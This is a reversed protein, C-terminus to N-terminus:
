HTVTYGSVKAAIKIQGIPLNKVLNDFNIGGFVRARARRVYDHAYYHAVTDRAACVYESIVNKSWNVLKLAQWFLQSYPITSTENGSELDM